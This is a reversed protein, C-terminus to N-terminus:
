CQRNELRFGCSKVTKPGVHFARPIDYYGQESKKYPHSRYQNEGNFRSPFNITLDIAKITM